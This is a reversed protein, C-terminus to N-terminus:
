DVRCNEIVLVALWHVAKKPDNNRCMPHTSHAEHFLRILYNFLDAWDWWGPLVGKACEVFADLSYMVTPEPLTISMVGAYNTEILVAMDEVKHDTLTQRVAEATVGTVLFMEGNPNTALFTRLDM